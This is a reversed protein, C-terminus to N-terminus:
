GRSARSGAAGASTVGAGVPWARPEERADSLAVNGCLFGFGQLCDAPSWPAQRILSRIGNTYPAIRMPRHREVLLKAQDHGIGVLAVALQVPDCESRARCSQHQHARRSTPTQALQSDSLTQGCVAVRERARAPGLVFGYSGSVLAGVEAYFDDYGGEVRAVDEGPPTAEYGTLWEITDDVEAIYGDLSAACYYQVSL